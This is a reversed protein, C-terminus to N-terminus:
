TICNFEQVFLNLSHLSEDLGHAHIGNRFRKGGQFLSDFLVIVEKFERHFNMRPLGWKYRCLMGANLFAGVGM